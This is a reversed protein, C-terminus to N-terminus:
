SRGARGVAPGGSSFADTRKARQWLHRLQRDDDGPAQDAAPHCVCSSCWRRAAFRRCACNSGVRPASRALRRGAGRHRVLPTNGHSQRPSPRMRDNEKPPCAPEGVSFMVASSSVCVRSQLVTLTRADSPRSPANQNADDAKRPATRVGPPIAHAGRGDPYPGLALLLGRRTLCPGERHPRSAALDTGSSPPPEPHPASPRRRQGYTRESEEQSRGLLARPGGTPPQESRRPGGNPM